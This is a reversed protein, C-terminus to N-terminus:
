SVNIATIIGYAILLGLSLAWTRSGSRADIAIAILGVVIGAFGVFLTATHGFAFNCLAVLVYFCALVIVIAGRVFGQYTARHDAMFSANTSHEAM